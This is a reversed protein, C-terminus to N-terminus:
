VTVVITFPAGVCFTPTLGKPIVTYTINIPANTANTPADTINGSGGSGNSGSWTFTGSGASLTPAINLSTGSCIVNPGAAVSNGVPIPDVTVVIPALPTGPCGNASPTIIYQVTGGAASTLTQSITTGSGASQGASRPGAYQM